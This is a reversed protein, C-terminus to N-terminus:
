PIYPIRWVKDFYQLTMKGNHLILTLSNRTYNKVKCREGQTYKTSCFKVNWDNNLVDGINVLISCNWFWKPIYISQWYLRAVGNM